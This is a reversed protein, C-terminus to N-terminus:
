VYTFQDLASTLTTSSGVTVTIDVAGAAHVPASVTIQSGTANVTIASTVPTGAFSVASAGTFGAGRITVTTGGLHSGANPSVSTVVPGYTFRDSAVAASTGGPGTVTVDAVSEAAGSPATANISTNSGVTFSASTSGFSVRTAGSFGNGTITVAAGGTSAGASPSISTVSPRPAIYTYQDAITAQSRGLSATVAIDVTGGASAPATVTIATASVSGITAPVGGFSVATAGSFGSGTITVTTGGSTPGSNPSVRTIVVGSPPATTTTTTTRPLTTTTTTSAPPVTTGTPQTTTTTAPSGSGGGGLDAKFAALSNPYAALVSNGGSNYNFYSAWAVNNSKMWASFSNVWYPDDGGGHGDSRKIVGFEGIGIPKQVTNAFNTLGALVSSYNNAWLCAEQAQTFNSGNYPIGCGGYWSQDYFDFTVYDVYGSGPYATNNTTANFTGGWYWAWKFSAGSVAAMASHADRWLAAYNAASTMDNNSYIGADPEWMLRIIANGFGDAVLNQALKTFNADWTAPNAAYAALAAQDNSYGASVLPVSLVPRMAGLKGKIQNVVWPASTTSGVMSAWSSGDLYDSYISATTGTESAFSTAGAVSGAGNYSGLLPVTTASSSVALPVIAATAALALVALGTLVKRTHM